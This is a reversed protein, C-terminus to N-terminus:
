GGVQRSQQFLCRQESSLKVLFVNEQWQHKWSEKGGGRSGCGEEKKRRKWRGYGHAEDAVEVMVQRARRGDGGAGGAGGGGGGEWGEAVLVVLRMKEGDGSDRMMAREKVAVIWRAEGGAGVM